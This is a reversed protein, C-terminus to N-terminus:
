DGGQTWTARPTQLHTTPPLLNATDAGGGGRQVILVAATPAGAGAQQEVEVDTCKHPGGCRWGWKLGSYKTKHKLFETMM